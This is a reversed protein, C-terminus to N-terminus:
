LFRWKLLNLFIVVGDVLTTGKYNDRYITNIPITDYKLGNKGARIIMETEVSYDTSVWRVKEYAAATLVRFGSQTDSIKVRSVINIM